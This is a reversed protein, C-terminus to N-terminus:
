FEKKKSVVVVLGATAALLAVSVAALSVDGTKPGELTEDGVVISVQKTSANFKVTVDCAEKVEFDFNGNEGNGGWSNTWTGDTVKLSYNGAAVNTYTISYVGDAYTMKNAEDNEKWESGCLAGVGAVYYSADAVPAEPTEPTEPVEPTEPTEPVEPTEGAEPAEVIEYASFDASISIWADADGPITIDGTQATGDNAIFGTSGAPVTIEWWDGNKTMPEGPWEAFANGYDGWAWANPATESDIAVHITITDEAAFACVSLVSVCLMLALVIAFMKKM